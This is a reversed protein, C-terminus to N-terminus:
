DSYEIGSLPVSHGIRSTFYQMAPHSCNSKKKSFLLLLTFLTYSIFIPHSLIFCIATFKFHLFYFCIFYLCLATFCSTSLFFCLQHPLFWSLLSPPLLPLQFPPVHHPSSSVSNIAPFGVSSPPRRCHRSFPLFVIVTCFSLSSPSAFNPSINSSFVSFSGKFQNFEFLLKLGDLLMRLPSNFLFNIKLCMM